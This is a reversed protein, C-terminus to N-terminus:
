GTVKIDYKQGLYSEILKRESDTLVRNFIIIESIYGDWAEGSNNSGIYFATEPPLATATSSILTENSGSAGFGGSGVGNTFLKVEGSAGEYTASIIEPNTTSTSTTTYNNIAGGFIVQRKRSSTSSDLGYGWGSTSDGNQFLTKAGTSNNSLQAVVFFTFINDATYILKNNSSSSISSLTLAPAESADFYVSPLNNITSMEKYTVGSSATIVAFLKSGAQPNRDNWQTIQSGDYSQDEDFSESMSTELWLYLGETRTVPSSLTLSQASSLKFYNVIKASSVIGTIIIGIILLMVSVEILSFASNRKM